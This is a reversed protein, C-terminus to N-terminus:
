LKSEVVSSAPLNSAEQTKAMQKVQARIEPKIRSFAIFKERAHERQEPTLKSWIELRSQFLKKQLPALQPYHNSAVLLHKQLKAPLSDWQAALPQLAEHQASTLQTWPKYLEAAALNTQLLLALCIAYVPLRHIKM